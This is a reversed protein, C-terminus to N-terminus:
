PVGRGKAKKKSAGILSYRRVAEFISLGEGETGLSAANRAEIGLLYSALRKMQGVYPREHCHPNFIMNLVAQENCENIMQPEYGLIYLNDNFGANRLDEGIKNIGYDIRVGESKEMYRNLVFVTKDRYEKLFSQELAKIISREQSVVTLIIDSGELLADSLSGGDAESDIITVSYQSRAYKLVASILADDMLFCDSPAMFHIRGEMDRVCSRFSGEGFMGNRYLSYFDDMGKALGNDNLYYRMDGSRRNLDILLVPEGTLRAMMASLHVATMTQGLRNKPSTMCIKM